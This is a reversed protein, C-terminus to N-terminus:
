PNQTPTIVSWMKKPKIPLLDDGFESPLPLLDSLDESQPSPAFIPSSRRPSIPQTEAGLAAPRAHHRKFFSCLNGKDTSVGLTALHDAIEQWGKRQRRLAAILEFHPTLKSQFPKGAM